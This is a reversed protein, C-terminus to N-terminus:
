AIAINAEAVNNTAELTISGGTFTFVLDGGDDSVNADGQALTGSNDTDIDAFSTIENGGADLVGDFVITDDSTFDRITDDGAEVGNIIFTDGGDGGSMVDDGTGGDITDAGADGFLRDADAGGYIDDDGDGGFIMDLGDGGVLGDDGADGFIADNGEDGSIFNTGRTGSIIDNGENGFFPMGSPADDSMVVTDSGGFGQTYDLINGANIDIGNLDVTDDDDSFVEGEPDVAPEIGTDAVFVDEFGNNDDPSLNPNDSSIAIQSSHGTFDISASFGIGSVEETVGTEVYHVYTQTNAPNFPDIASFGVLQGDPSITVDIIDSGTAPGTIKSTVGSQRNHLFVDTFGNFDDNTLNQAESVFAVWEGDDSIAANFSRGDSPAGGVAMSILETTGSILDRVFVDDFGNFDTATHNSAFSEFALFAGNGSLEGNISAGNTPTGDFGTSTASLTQNTALDRIFIDDFGNFDNSTVGSDFTQFSVLQGDNSISANFAGGFIDGGDERLSVRTIAGSVVDRAYIDTSGNFDTGTFDGFSEFVVTSGDGSISANFADTFVDGGGPLESVRMIQGTALDRIFVDVNGNIDTPVLNSAFSEFVIYAGDNSISPQVSFGDNPSGDFARSAMAFNSLNITM